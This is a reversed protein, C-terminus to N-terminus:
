WSSTVGNHNPASRHPATTTACPLGIARGYLQRMQGLLEAQQVRETIRGDALRVYGFFSVEYPRKIASAGFAMLNALEEVPPV